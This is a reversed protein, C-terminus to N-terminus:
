CKVDDLICVLLKILFMSELSSVLVLWSQKSPQLWYEQQLSSCISTLLYHMSFSIVAFVSPWQLGDRCLFFFFFSCPFLIVHSLQQFIDRIAHPPYCALMFKCLLLLFYLLTGNWIHKIAPFLLSSFLECLLEWAGSINQNKLPLQKKLLHGSLFSCLVFFYCLYHQLDWWLAGRYKPIIRTRGSTKHPPIERKECILRLLECRIGDEM